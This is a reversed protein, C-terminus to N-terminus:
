ASSCCTSRTSSASASSRTSSSWASTPSACTRPSLLRHTGIILRGAGRSRRAHTAPGEKDQLPEPSSGFRTTPWGSSPVHARAARRPRHDARARRGAQRVRVAKFAARIAVETKGFGVDGCLLRDMPPRGGHGEQGRRDRRAPGRDGRVPVRSRVRAAVATDAPFRIGPMHERAAQVRLMEAALDRVAEAVVSSRRDEEVEQRRAQEAAAQGPVRRHVEARSRDAVGPRARHVVYDGPEIDLFDDMARGGRIRGFRRRTQYRHLLEHYPVLMFRHAGGHDLDDGHSEEGWVFGRHVYRVEREILTEPAHADILETLRALEGQNQCAVVVDIESALRGLEGIAKAGDEDFHPLPDVPISAPDEVQAGGGFQNVEVVSRARSEILKFVAPPGYINRADSVREYYGRGQETLEMVEALMVTAGRDGSGDPLLDLLSHAERAEQMQDLTAGVLEIEDIKRDSGMTDPDVEMITELEDGFYDLRVPAQGDAPPYIDVIGGRVAFEGPGELAAVRTYGATTLWAALREPGRTDGPRLVVVLEDLRSAPPTGQMLAQISTVLVDPPDGDRLRRAVRLRDALLEVSVGTEGPLVELAPFRDANAGIGTIEDVAEDVDDLHALVLVVPRGTRKAVAAAVYHTSSGVAGACNLRQGGDSARAIRAVFADRRIIRFWDM